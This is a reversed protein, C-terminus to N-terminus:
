HHNKIYLIYIVVCILFFLSNIFFFFYLFVLLRAIYKLVCNKKRKSLSTMADDAHNGFRKIKM